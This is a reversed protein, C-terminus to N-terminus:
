HSSPNAVGPVVPLARRWSHMAGAPFALRYHRPTVPGVVLWRRPYALVLVGVRSNPHAAVVPEPRPRVFSPAVAVQCNPCESDPEVAVPIPSALEQLGVAASRNPFAFELVVVASYNSREFGLVVAVLMPCMLSQAVAVVWNKPFGPLM